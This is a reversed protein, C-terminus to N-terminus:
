TENIAVGAHRGKLREAEPLPSVATLADAEDFFLIVAARECVDFVRKLRKETERYCSHYITVMMQAGVDRTHAIMEQVKREYAEM